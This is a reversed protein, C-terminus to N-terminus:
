GASRNFSLHARFSLADLDSTQELLWRHERTGVHQTREFCDDCVPGNFPRITREGDYNITRLGRRPKADTGGRHCCSCASM